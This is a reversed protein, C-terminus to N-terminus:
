STYPQREVTGPPNRAVTARGTLYAIVGAWCTFTALLLIPTIVLNFGPGFGARFPEVPDYRVPVIKGTQISHEFADPMLQEGQYEKGNAQYTYFFRANAKGQMKIATVTGETALWSTQWPSPVFMSYTLATFGIAFPLLVFGLAIDHKRTLITETTENM